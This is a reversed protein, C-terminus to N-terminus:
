NFNSSRTYYEIKEYKDDAVDSLVETMLGLFQFYLKSKEKTM